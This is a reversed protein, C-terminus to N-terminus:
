RVLEKVRDAATAADRAYGDAGIQEAYESSVPAGGVIVKVKERLGALFGQQPPVVGMNAAIPEVIVAAIQEHYHRFLQEVAEANNYPAVLTNQAYSSPVGPSDPIGLTALGSGGKTLLGDAHGHYCGAFKVIKDRGTFARALRLATMAAETGSNVFRVMEISPMAASITKALIIELETPAGYSTGREVALKLADVVKPYSHGLILPGWSGVFDIFENGDADYIRSGQGRAIFPPTGGVAKFARVPSDVGGPLYHQAEAFLKQTKKRENVPMEKPLKYGGLLM